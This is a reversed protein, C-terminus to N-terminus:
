SSPVKEGYCLQRNGSLQVQVNEFGAAKLMHAMEANSYRNMDASWIGCVTSFLLNKLKGGFKPLTVIAIRGGDQLVRHLEKLAVVPRELFVFVATCAVCTFSGDAWPLSHADGAVIEARGEAVAESNNERALDVMDRSHDIAAAREVKELALKLLMGGGQGIELYKDDSKLELRAVIAEYARNHSKPNKYLLKGLWGRPKRATVEVIKQKLGM